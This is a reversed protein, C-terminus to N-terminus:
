RSCIVTCSSLFLACCDCHRSHNALPAAMEGQSTVSGVPAAIDVSTEVARGRMGDKEVADREAADDPEPTSQQQRAVSVGPSSVGGTWTENESCTENESGSSDGAIM